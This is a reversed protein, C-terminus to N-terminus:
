LQCNLRTPLTATTLCSIGSMGSNTKRELFHVLITQSNVRINIWQPRTKRRRVIGERCTTEIICQKSKQARSQRLWEASFVKQPPLRRVSIFALRCNNLKTFVSRLRKLLQFRCNCRFKRKSEIRPKSTTSESRRNCKESLASKGNGHSRSEM